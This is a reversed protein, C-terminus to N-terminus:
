TAVWMFAIAVTAGGVISSTANAVRALRDAAAEEIESHSTFLRAVACAWLGVSLPWAGVLVALALEM